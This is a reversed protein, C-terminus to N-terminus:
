CANCIAGGDGHIRRYIDPEHFTTTPAHFLLDVAGLPGSRNKRILLKAADDKDPRERHIMLVVDADQEIDGSERLDHLHPERKPGKELDRNLQSVAVVPIKQDQALRKLGRTIAGIQQHRPASRLAGPAAMLGIYDVVVLRIDNRRIHMRSWEIVDDITASSDSNIIINLGALRAAAAEVGRWEQSNLADTRRSLRDGPIGSESALARTFLERGGMELSVCFVGVNHGAVARILNLAVCSKGMSPRGAVVILRGPELGGTAQDLQRWPTPFGLMEGDGIRRMFDLSEAALAGFGQGSPRSGHSRIEEISRSMAAALDDFDGPSELPSRQFREIAEQMRRKQALELVRRAHYEADVGHPVADYLARIDDLEIGTILRQGLITAFTFFDVPSGSRHQELILSYIIGHREVFFDGQALIPAIEEIRTPDYMLSGLVQREIDLNYPEPDHRM